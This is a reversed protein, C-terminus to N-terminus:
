PPNGINTSPSAQAIKGIIQVYEYSQIEPLERFCSDLISTATALEFLHQGSETIEPEYLWTRSSNDKYILLQHGDRKDRNPYDIDRPNPRQTADIERITVLRGRSNVRMPSSVPIGRERFDQYAENFLVLWKAVILQEGVQLGQVTTMLEAPTSTWVNLSQISRSADSTPVIQSIIEGEPTGSVDDYFLDHVAEQAWSLDGFTATQAAIKEQAFRIIEIATRRRDNISRTRLAEQIIYDLYNRVAGPGQPIYGALAVAQVCRLSDSDTGGMIDYQGLSTLIHNVNWGAPTFPLPQEPDPSIRQLNSLPRNTSISNSVVGLGRLRGLRFVNDELRDSNPPIIFLEVRRNMARGIANDENATLSVEGEFEPADANILQDPPVGSGRAIQYFANVRRRSLARNHAASGSSDTHGVFRIRFGRNPQIVSTFISQFFAQHEPKPESSDIGINMFRYHREAQVTQNIGPSSSSQSIEEPRTAGPQIGIQSGFAQSAVATQHELRWVEGLFYAAEIDETSVYALVRNEVAEFRDQYNNSQSARRGREDQTMVQRCLFETFGEDYFRHSSTSQQIWTKYLDNAYFHVFEHLLTLIRQEARVGQNLSIRQGRESFASQRSALINLIRVWTSTGVRQREQVETQDIQGTEWGREELNLRMADLAPELNFVSTDSLLTNMVGIFNPDTEAVGFNGINTRGVIQNALWQEMFNRNLAQDAPIIDIAAQIRSESLRSSIQPFRAAIRDNANIADREANAETTSPNVAGLINMPNQDIQQQVSQKFQQIIQSGTGPQWAQTQQGGSGLVFLNDHIMQFRGPEDLAQERQITNPLASRQVAGQSSVREELALKQAMKDTVADPVQGCVDDPTGTTPKAQITSPKPNNAAPPALKFFSESSQQSNFFAKRSQEPQFM